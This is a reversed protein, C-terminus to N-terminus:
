WSASWMSMCARYCAAHRMWDLTLDLDLGFDNLGLILDFSVQLVFFAQIPEFKPSKCDKDAVGTASRGDNAVNPDHAAVAVSSRPWCSSKVQSAKRRLMRLLVSVTDSIM